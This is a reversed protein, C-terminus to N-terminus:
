VRVGHELARRALKEAAETAMPLWIHPAGRPMPLADIGLVKQALAIRHKAEALMVDRADLHVGAEFLARAVEMDFPSTGWTEARIRSAIASRRERPPILAGVRVLPTLSKSLGNLYYVREP